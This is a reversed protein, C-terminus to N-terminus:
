TASPASRLSKLIFSVFLLALLSFPILTFFAPLIGGVAGSLGTIVNAGLAYEGVNSFSMFTCFMFGEISAPCLRMAITFVIVNGLGYGIGSLFQCLFIVTASSGFRGVFLWPIMLLWYLVTTWVYFSLSYTRTSMLRGFVFSGIAAGGFLAFNLFGYLHLLAPDRGWGLDTLIYMQAVGPIATVATLSLMFLIGMWPRSSGFAEKLVTGLPMLTRLDRRTVTPERFFFASLTQVLASIAMLLVTTTWGIRPGILPILVSGAAFGVMRTASHVGQFSGQQEDPTIDVALGDMTGDVFMWAVMVGALSVIWIFDYRDHFAMLAFAPLYILLGLFIYPKRRGKTGVPVRDSLLGSFMKLFTPLAILTKILTQTAVPVAWESMRITGYTMIGALYFGQFLYFVGIVWFYYNRFGRRKSELSLSEIMSQM